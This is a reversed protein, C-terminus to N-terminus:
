CARGAERNVTPIILKLDAQIQTAHIAHGSNRDLREDGCDSDVRASSVSMRLSGIVGNTDVQRDPLFHHARIARCWWAQAGTQPPTRRKSRHLKLM